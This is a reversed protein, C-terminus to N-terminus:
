GGKVSSYITAVANSVGAISDLWDRTKTKGAEAGSKYRLAEILLATDQQQKALEAKAKSSREAAKIIMALVIIGAVVFVLITITKPNM